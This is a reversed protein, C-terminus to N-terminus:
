LALLAVLIIALVVVIAFWVLVTRMMRNGVEASREDSVPMNWWQLRRRETM